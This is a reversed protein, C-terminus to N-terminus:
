DLLTHKDIWCGTGTREKYTAGWGIRTEFQSWRAITESEDYEDLPVSEFGNKEAAARAAEETAYVKLGGFEHCNWYILVFVEM